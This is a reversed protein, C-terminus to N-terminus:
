QNQLLKLLCRGTMEEPQPLGLLYLLTPAIDALTGEEVTFQAKRRGWYILPVQLETHATHPQGTAEDFMLEANGHDATVLMEGGVQALAKQIDGLCEDVAEIARVTAEFNGTHGVMDPNAYNCVIMDYKQSLIADVLQHTMEPASMEPQLDYTPVKPSPVLIRDEGPFPTERGGNFFFTVHAYKETEALRLQKLGRQALCEALINHLPTPSFMVQAALDDAYHTLTVYAGLTRFTTRPFGSFHPDTLAYSLQRARDARYNMFIVVDGDNIKVPTGGAPYIATPQVFEDSEGRDYAQQLGEEASVSHFASTGDVLLEYAAQTREWRKDRDMAYYRGVISAIRGVGSTSLAQELAQISGEASKPPTDRGDLFAHVYLQKIGAQAAMKVASFLQEEHSHVGGPSLLGMMHVAKQQSVAKALAASLVPNKYFEGSELAANIRTFEQQVVRGAGLNLHGVESNGMQADPLGVWRGSGWILTHAGTNWLADWHPTRAAYIANYQPDERYGWGDLIILVMPKSM